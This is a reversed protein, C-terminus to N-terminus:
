EGFEREIASRASSRASLADYEREADALSREADRRTAAAERTSPMRIQSILAILLGAAAGAGLGIVMNSSYEVRTRAQQAASTTTANSYDQYASQGELYMFGSAAGAVVGAGLFAWRTRGRSRRLFMLSAEQASARYYEDRLVEVVARASQGPNPVSITQGPEPGISIQDTRAVDFDRVSGIDIRYNGPPLPVEASPSGPGLMITASVIGSAEPYVEVFADVQGDYLFEVWVANDSARTTRDAFAVHSLWLGLVFLVLFRITIPKM